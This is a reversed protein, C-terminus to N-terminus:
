APAGGPGQLAFHRKVRELGLHLLAIDDTRAAAIADPALGAFADPDLGDRLRDLDYM